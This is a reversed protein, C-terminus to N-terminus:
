FEFGSTAGAGVGFPTSGGAGGFGRAQQREATRAVDQFRSGGFAVDFIADIQEQEQPTLGLLRQFSPTKLLEGFGIPIDGGEGLGINSLIKQIFPADTVLGTTGAAINRPDRGAARIRSSPSTFIELLQQAIPAARNSSAIGERSERERQSEGSTFGQRAIREERSFKREADRIARNVANQDTIDVTETYVGNVFLDKFRGTKDTPIDRFESGSPAAAQARAADEITEQGTPRAGDAFTRGTLQSPPVLEGVEESFQGTPRNQRDLAAQFINRLVRPDRGPVSPQLFGTEEGILRQGAGVQGVAGGLFDLIGRAGRGFIGPIDILPEQHGPTHPM